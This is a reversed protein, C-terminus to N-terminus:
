GSLVPQLPRNSDVLLEWCGIRPKRYNDDRLSLLVECPVGLQAVVADLRQRTQQHTIYGKEIGAQLAHECACHITVSNCHAEISCGQLM